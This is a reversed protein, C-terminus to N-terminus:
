YLSGLVMRPDPYLTRARELDDSHVVGPMDAGEPEVLSLQFHLHPLWGGNESEDGFSGIQEGASVKEGTTWLELSSRSLHGYLAWVSRGDIQHVTVITPGYDRPNANDALAYVRGDTFAYVPTGAPGWIDIGMHVTRGDSYIHSDYMQPTRRECYGGVAWRLACLTEVDYGSTLDVHVLPGDPRVVPRFSM